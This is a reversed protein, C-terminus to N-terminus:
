GSAQSWSLLVLQYSMSESSSTDKGVNRDELVKKNVRLCLGMDIEGRLILFLNAKDAEGNV